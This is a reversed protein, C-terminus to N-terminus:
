STVLRTAYKFDSYAASYAQVTSTSESNLILEETNFEHRVPAWSDGVFAFLEYRNDNTPRLWLNEKSPQTTNLIVNQYKM